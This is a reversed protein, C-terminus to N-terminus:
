CRSLRALARKKGPLNRRDDLAAVALPLSAGADLLRRVMGPDFVAAFRALDVVTRTPTTVLSGDLEVVEDDSIVVERLEIWRAPDRSVRAGIAVCFQHRLPPADLAGWVWAASRQEAILREGAHLAAARHRPQEVEDVPSFGSGVPYLQGDLRAAQLEPAPLDAPSLVRPLRM